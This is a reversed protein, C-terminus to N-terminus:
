GDGEAKPAAALMARYAAYDSTDTVPPDGYFRFGNKCRYWAALMEVAPERPVLQWGETAQPVPAAFRPLLGFLYCNWAVSAKEFHQRAEAEDDFLANGMEADEYVVMFKRPQVKGEYNPQCWAVPESAPADQSAAFAAELAARMAREEEGPMVVYQGGGCVECWDPDHGNEGFGHHYGRGDCRECKLMIPENIMKNFASLAVAVTDDTIVM